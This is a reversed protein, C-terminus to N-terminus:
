KLVGLITFFFDTVIYRLHLNHTHSETIEQRMFTRLILSLDDPKTVLGNVGLRSLWKAM